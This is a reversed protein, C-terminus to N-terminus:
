IYVYIYTHLYDYISWIANKVLLDKFNKFYNIEVSNKFLLKIKFDSKQNTRVTIIQYIINTLSSYM